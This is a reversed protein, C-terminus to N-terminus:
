EYTLAVAPLATLLALGLPGGALILAIDALAIGATIGVEAALLDMGSEAHFNKWNQEAILPKVATVYSGMVDKFLVDPHGHVGQQLITEKLSFTDGFNSSKKIDDKVSIPM